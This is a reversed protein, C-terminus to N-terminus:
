GSFYDKMQTRWNKRWYSLSRVLAVAYSAEKVADLGAGPEADPGAMRINVVSAVAFTVIVGTFAGFFFFLAQTNADLGGQVDNLNRDGTSFFWVFSSVVLALGVTRAVLPSKFVLLGRLRGISLAIQLVGITAVLVCLYYDTAFTFM